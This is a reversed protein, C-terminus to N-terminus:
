IKGGYGVMAVNISKMQKHKMNLKKMEIFEEYRIITNNARTGIAYKVFFDAKTLMCWDNCAQKNGVFMVKREKSKEGILYFKVGQEANMLDWIIFYRWGNTNEYNM